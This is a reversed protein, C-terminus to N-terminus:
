FVITSVILIRYWSSSKFLFDHCPFGPYRLTLNSLHDDVNFNGCSLIKDIKDHVM